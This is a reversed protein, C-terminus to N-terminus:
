LAGPQSGNQRGQLSSFTHALEKPILRVRQLSQTLRPPSVVTPGGFISQFTILLDHGRRDIMWNPYSVAQGTTFEVTQTAAEESRLHQLEPEVRNRIFDVISQLATPPLNRIKHEDGIKHPVGNLNPASRTEILLGFVVFPDIIYNEYSYRGIVLVRSNPVNADDEDILGFVLEDFPPSDLKNIWHRVNDKGGSTKATSKGVSVSVFAITPTPTLAMADKGPGIDILIDRICNYFVSDAEDEVLVFRTSPSVTVLGATLLGIANAKSQSPQIKAGGRSMEFISGDPALAVTSPSHTTLIVRVNYRDVLVEKLVNFFQRTMAPHLHADPEDLLLLRPFRNHHKSDYMWIALQLIAKEGSSLEQPSIATDGEMLLVRYLGLLSSTPAAVRYPFEAVTLIENLVDWPAPGLKAEAEDKSLGRELEEIIQLRHGLFVHALGSIPSEDDLMFSLDNPAADLFDNVPFSRVEKGLLTAAWRQRRLMQISSNGHQILQNYAQEKVNVLNSISLAADNITTESNPVYAVEGPQFTDGM